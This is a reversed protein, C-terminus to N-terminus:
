IFINGPFNSRQYISLARIIDFSSFRGPYFIYNIYSQRPDVDSENVLYKEDPHQVLVATDWNSNIQCNKIPLLAHNIVISDIDTRWVAWLRTMTFSFDVLHQNPAVLTCVRTLKFPNQLLKFVFFESRDDFKLYTCLFLENNSDVTKKLSHNQINSQRHNEILDLVTVCQAKSCSWMRLNGERYLSYLHVDNGHQQLVLSSVIEVESRGRIATAIGSFIRPVISEQKLETTHVFGTITDLRLLLIIGSNYALAFLAEEQPQILCSAAAHAPSSTSNSTPIVHFTHPDRANQITAESFISQLVFDVSTPNFQNQKHIKDPHPFSFKHISSVTAILIIVSSVTEYITIGDLLPTDTFKYRVKNNALNVDLSNEVLELVDHYIRWYIFRNRTFYKSSDKYCYGGAREPVKIEQLSSGGTTLTIEKWKDQLTQDPIVERYGLSYEM